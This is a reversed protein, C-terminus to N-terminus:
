TILNFYIYKGCRFEDSKDDCQPMGDCRNITPICQHNNCEFETDNCHGLDFYNLM